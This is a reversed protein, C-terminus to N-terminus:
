EEVKEEQVSPVVVTDSALAPYRFRGGVIFSDPYLKRLRRLARAADTRTRFRGITVMYSSNSYSRDSEMDPFLNRCEGLVKASKIDANKDTGSYVRIRFGNVMSAANLSVQERMAQGVAEPQNLIVGPGLENFIDAQAAASFACAALFFFACLIRKM